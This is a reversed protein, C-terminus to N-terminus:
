QGGNATLNHVDTRVWVDVTRSFETPWKRYLWWGILDRAAADAQLAREQVAFHAGVYASGLAPDSVSSDTIVLPSNGAAALSEVFQANPFSRLKWGLLGDRDDSNPDVVAIQLEHREGTARQSIDQITGMMLDINPATVTPAWLEGASGARWQTLGLGAGLTGITMAAGLALAAGRVASLRSWGAAFLITVVLGLLAVGGALYLNLDQPANPLLVAGRSYAGLNFFVFVIMVFLVAAQSVVTEWEGEFWEGSFTEVVVKGALMALPLAVWLADSTDRGVYVVGFLLAGIAAAGLVTAIERWPADAAGGGAYAMAPEMEPERAAFVYQVRSALTKWYGSLFAVYLGGVGMVVALPEYVALTQLTLWAPRAATPSIWSSLWRPFAAGAASLGSPYFLAASAILVFTIGTASLFQRSQSRLAAWWKRIERAADPKAFVILVLALLSVAVASVFRPGDALGVGLGIGAAIIGRGGSRDAFRRVGAIVMMLSLAALTAGDATRSAALMVPSIALLASAALAASRGLERRFILPTFVLAVGAAMPWFRAWFESSGFLAFVLSTLSFWAASVPQAPAFSSASVFRWAALAERAEALSLPASGLHSLRLVFALAGILIFLGSEVTLAAPQEAAVTRDVRMQENRLAAM